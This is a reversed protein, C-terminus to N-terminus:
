VHAWRKRNKIRSVQDPGIGYDRAIKRLSREDRRIAIVDSDELKSMGHNQGRNDPM